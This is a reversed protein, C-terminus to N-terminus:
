VVYILCFGSSVITDSFQPFSISEWLDDPFVDIPM